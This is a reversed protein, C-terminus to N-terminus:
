WGGRFGLDALRPPPGQRIVAGLLTVNDSPSPRAEVLSEASTGSELREILSRGLDPEPVPGLIGDTALLVVAPDDGEIPFSMLDPERILYDDFELDGLARTLALWKWGVNLYGNSFELRGEEIATRHRERLLPVDPGQDDATHRPAAQFRDGQRVWVPSDGLVAIHIAKDTVFAASLTSGSTERAGPACTEALREPLAALCTALAEGPALGSALSAGLLGPLLQATADAVGHGGHGDLVALLHGPYVSASVYRDEQDKRRGLAQHPTLSLQRKM